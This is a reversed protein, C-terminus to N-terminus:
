EVTKMYLAWEEDSIEGKKRYYERAKAGLLETDYAGDGDTDIEIRSISSNHHFVHIEFSGDFNRDEWYEHGGDSFDKSGRYSARIDVEGDRNTDVLLMDPGGWSYKYYFVGLAPNNVTVTRFLRVYGIVCAAVLITVLAVLLRKRM